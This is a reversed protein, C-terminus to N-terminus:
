AWPAIVVKTSEPQQSIHIAEAADALGYEHSVIDRLPMDDLHRLMMDMGTIYATVPHNSLGLIRLNGACILHPNVMVEGMDVYMGSEIYTGGRRVLSLGEVFAEPRGACEVATDAGRGNTYQMVLERREAVTTESVDITDDAGFKRAVELREAFTDMVIIRDAGMMRAKILHALGLPGVGQILLTRGFQHGDMLSGTQAQDLSFACALLEAFQAVKPPLGDPVLYTFANPLVYMYESWAGFLHPAVSSSMQNGYGRQNECWPYGNFNRCAYCKGCAVDPCVVVRDGEKLPRGAYELGTRAEDTIEAVTGVLEHGPIIPFPTTSEAPTGKYQVTEGRFTHKDTGCIGCYEIKLLMAGPELVPWPFEQVEMSGPKTMVAARITEAM